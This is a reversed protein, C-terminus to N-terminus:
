PSTECVATQRGVKQGGQVTTTMAGSLACSTSAHFGAGRTYVRDELVRARLALEAALAPDPTGAAYVTTSLQLECRGPTCTPAGLGAAAVDDTLRQLETTPVPAPPRLTGSCSWEGLMNSAGLLTVTATSCVTGHLTNGQRPLGAGRQRVVQSIDRTLQNARDDLAAWTGALTPAARPGTWTGRCTFRGLSDRESVTCVAGAGWPTSRVVRQATAPTVTAFATTPFADTVPDSSPVAGSILDDLWAQYDADLAADAAAANIWADTAGTDSNAIADLLNLLRGPDNADLYAFFLGAYPYFRFDGYTIHVLQNVHMRSADAAVQDVLIARPVVGAGPTAGALHEAMGEDFFVMRSNAYIPADGWLGDVLWRGLVAHAMEHRVLEELTFISDAPTRDYTYLTGDQEIYIGGNSTSLGYLFPQYAGYQAPSAYVKLTLTPNPDSALPAARRLRRSAQAHVETIAHYLRRATAENLATRVVLAGDDFTWTNPFVAAEIQPVVDDRCVTLGPVSTQCNAFDDLSAIAWLWAEDQATLTQYWSTLRAVADTYLAPVLAFHGMGWMLNNTMWTPAGGSLGASIADDFADLLDPTAAAVFAASGNGLQRSTIVAVGYVALEAGYDLVRPGTWARLAATLVDTYDAVLESGDATNMWEYLVGEAEDIPDLLHPNAALADLAAATEPLIQSGVFSASQYFGHYFRIRSFLLKQQLHDPDPGTWAPARTTIDALVAEVHADSTLVGAVAADFTWLYYLCNSDSQGLYAVLDTPSIGVLDSSSCSSPLPPPLSVPGPGRQVVPTPDGHIPQARLGATDASCAALLALLLTRM